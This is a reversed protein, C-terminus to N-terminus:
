AASNQIFYVENREPKSSGHCIPARIISLRLELALRPYKLFSTPPKNVSQEYAQKVRVVDDALITATNNIQDEM